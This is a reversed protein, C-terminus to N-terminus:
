LVSSITMITYPSNTLTVPSSFTLGAADHVAVTYSGSSLNNFTNSTQEPSFRLDTSKKISYLVTGITGPHPTLTIVPQATAFIVMVCFAVTLVARYLHITMM